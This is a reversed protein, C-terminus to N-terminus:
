KEKIWRTGSFIFTDGTKQDTARDGTKYGKTSLKEVVEGAPAEASGEGDQPAGEPEGSEYGYKKEVERLKGDLDRQIKLFASNPINDGYTDILQGMKKEFDGSAGELSRLANIKGQIQAQTDYPSIAFTKRIWELKKQPLVGAKNFVKIVGDLVLNGRNKYEAFETTKFPGYQGGGVIGLGGGFLANQRGVNGKHEELWDLNESFVRGGSEGGKLYDIVSEAKFENIKKDFASEGQKDKSFMKFAEMPSGGSRSYTEIFANRGEETNVGGLDLAADFATSFANGARAKQYAEGLFKVQDPPAGAALAQSYASLLANPDNASDQVNQGFSELGQRGSAQELQKGIFQLQQPDAGAALAQRYASAIATPDNAADQIGTEFTQLGRQQRGQTMRQSLANALSGGLSSLGQALGSQDQFIIPAPM